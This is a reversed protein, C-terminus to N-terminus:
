SIRVKVGLNESQVPFTVIIASPNYDYMKLCTFMPYTSFAYTETWYFRFYRATVKTTLIAEGYENSSLSCESWTSGDDSYQIGSITQRRNPDGATYEVKKLSVNEGFDVKFWTPNGNGNAAWGTNQSEAAFAKWPPNAEFYASATPTCSLESQETVMEQLIQYGGSGIEVNTPNIGFKDTYVDISSTTQVNGYLTIETQGAVLTGTIDEWSASGGGENKKKCNFWAM